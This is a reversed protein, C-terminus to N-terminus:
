IHTQKLIQRNLKNENHNNMHLVTVELSVGFVKRFLLLLLWVWICKSTIFTACSAEPSHEIPGGDVRCLV